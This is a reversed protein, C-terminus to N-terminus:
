CYNMCVNMCQHRHSGHLTGVLVDPPSDQELISRCATCPFGRVRGMVLSQSKLSPNSPVAIEFKSIQKQLWLHSFDVDAINLGIVLSM